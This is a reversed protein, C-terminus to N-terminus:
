NTKVLLARGNLSEKGPIESKAQIDAQNGGVSLVSVSDWHIKWKDGYRQAIGRVESGPPIMVTKDAFVYSKTRALIRVKHTGRFQASEIEVPILTGKPIAKLTKATDSITSQWEGLWTADGPRVILQKQAAHQSSAQEALDTARQGSGLWIEGSCLVMVLSLMLVFVWKRLLWRRTDLEERVGPFLEQDLTTLGDTHKLM